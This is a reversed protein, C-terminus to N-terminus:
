VSALPLIMRFTSGQGVESQVQIQGGHAEVIMRSQFMGIGLGKKKTTQFPRFLSRRVFEATMGCGNDAVSLVAQSDRKETRITIQGQASTAEHANVILNTLVSRVQARDVYVADTLGLDQMVTITRPGMQNVVEIVLENLDARRRDLDLGKRFSSLRTILDNIRLTTSALGRLADERFEPNDFHQPLNQLMLNLSSASNKLDHVFFASMTQFTEMERALALDQGLRLNLLTGTLQDALCKLLECEEATYPLRDVRDGLIVIGLTHQNARLIVALRRRDSFQQHTVERLGRAWATQVDELDFPDRRSALDALEAPELAKLVSGALHTDAKESTSSGFRWCCQEDLLWVTVSLANFTESILRTAATCADTPDKASILRESLQRWVQRFDYNPRQFHRSVSDKLRQRLRDSLLLLGLGAVGSLVILAQLQFTSSGGVWRAVQALVGVVFLYCGVLIITVSRQLVAPSPYVDVESLGRRLHAVGIMMCGILLAGTELDSWRPDHSPFLLAQSQTYVRAGFVLGLGLLLFKMRWRMTGVAAQFTREFNMLILLTGVLLLANLLKAAPSILLWAAADPGSLPVLLTRFFLLAIGPPVLLAFVLAARWSRLFERYSGRSYSLSFALWVGPLLAKTVLTSNQLLIYASPDAVASAAACLLSEVAFAAMGVLFCWSSFSRQRQLFAGAALFFSALAAAVALSTSPNAFVNM